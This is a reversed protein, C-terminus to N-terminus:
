AAVDKKKSLNAKVGCGYCSVRPKAVPIRCCVICLGSKRARARQAAKREAATKAQSMTRADYWTGAMELFDSLRPKRAPEGALFARLDDESLRAMSAVADVNGAIRTTGEGEAVERGKPINLFRAPVDAFEGALVWRRGQRVLDPIIRGGVQALARDVEGRRMMATEFLEQAVIRVARDRETM